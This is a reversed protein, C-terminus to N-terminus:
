VVSEDSLPKVYKAVYSNGHMKSGSAMDALQFSRM